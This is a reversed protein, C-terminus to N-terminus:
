PLHDSRSNIEAAGDVNGSMNLPKNKIEDIVHALSQHFAEIADKDMQKDDLDKILNNIRTANKGLVDLAKLLDELTSEDHVLDSIRDALNILREVEEM